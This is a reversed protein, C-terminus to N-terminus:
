FEKHLKMNLQMKRCRSFILHRSPNSQLTSNIKIPLISKLRFILTEGGLTLIMWMNKVCHRHKLFNPFIGEHIIAIVLDQDEQDIGYLSLHALLHNLGLMWSRSFSLHKDCLSSAQNTEPKLFWKICQRMRWRLQKTIQNCSEASTLPGSQESCFFSSNPKFSTM